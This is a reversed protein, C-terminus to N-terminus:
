YRKLRILYKMNDKDLETKQQFNGNGDDYYAYNPVWNLEAEMVDNQLSRIVLGLLGVLSVEGTKIVTLYFADLANVFPHGV